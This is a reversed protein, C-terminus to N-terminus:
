RGATRHAAVPAAPRGDVALRDLLAARIPPRTGFVLLFTAERVLRQAHQDRLVGPSGVAVVLRAAAHLAFHAAAARAAPVGEDPGDVLDRRCEDLVRTLGSAVPDAEDGGLDPRLLRVCRDAVGLSLAGNVRLSGVDLNGGQYRHVTVVRDEPVFHTAFHVAVTRSADV